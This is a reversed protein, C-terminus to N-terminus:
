EKNFVEHVRRMFRARHRVDAEIRNIMRRRRRGAKGKIKGNAPIVYGQSRLTAEIILALRNDMATKTM